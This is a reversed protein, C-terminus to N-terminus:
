VFKAGPSLQMTPVSWQEVWKLALKKVDGLDVRVACMRPNEKTWDVAFPQLDVPLVNENGFRPEFINVLSVVPQNGNSTLFGSNM